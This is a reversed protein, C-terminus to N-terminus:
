IPPRFHSVWHVYPQWYPSIQRCGPHRRISRYKPCTKWRHPVSNLANTFFTSVRIKMEDNNSDQLLSSTITGVGKFLGSIGNSIGTPKGGNFPETAPLLGVFYPTSNPSFNNWSFFNLPFLVIEQALQWLRDFAKASLWGCAM